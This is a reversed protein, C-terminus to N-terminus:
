NWIDVKLPEPADEPESKPPSAIGLFIRAGDKSFSLAGNESVAMGAPVNKFVGPVLESAAEAPETWLYVRFVPADAKYDHRDSVFALTAGKEDFAFGKYNGSGKLLVRTTGDAVRRVFAGDNEPTKSSVAYALSTGPKNWAYESVEPFTIDKGSALERLVLDTGPEKKKEKKKKGEAKEEPKEGDKKEDPKKDPPEALWAVHTGGDEAIRFSKVRDFTKVTGTALDMVGFGAKPMEEPKKKDKKAKDIDVKLPAVAFVVFKGDPTIVPDKGRPARHEAGSRLNRAVLEGDGDQPVLAYVLWVGDRSLATGRISRWFDYVDPTLPKMAPAAQGSFLAPALAGMSLILLFIVLKATRNKM